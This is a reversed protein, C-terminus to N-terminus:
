GRFSFSPAPVFFGRESQRTRVPADHHGGIRCRQLSNGGAPLASALLPVRLAYPLSPAAKAKGECKRQSQERNKAHPVSAPMNMLGAGVGMGVCSDAAAVEAGLMGRPSFSSRKGATRSSVPRPRVATRSSTFAPRKGFGILTPAAEM